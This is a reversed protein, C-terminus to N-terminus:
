PLLDALNSDLYFDHLGFKAKLQRMAEHSKDCRQGTWLATIMTNKATHEPSIFEFLKEQYGLAELLLVRLSDTLSEAFREEVIGHRLM